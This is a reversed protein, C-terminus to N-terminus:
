SRLHRSAALFGALGALVMATKPSERVPEDLERCVDEILGRINKGLEARIASTSVRQRARMRVSVAASFAAAAFMLM